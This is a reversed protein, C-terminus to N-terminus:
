KAPCAVSGITSKLSRVLRDVTSAFKQLDATSYVFDFKAIAPGCLAIMRTYLVRAGKRGSYSAADPTSVAYTISWGDHKEFQQEARVASEFDGDIDSPLYRGFVTLAATPTKFTEGDGNFPEGQGVFGPPIDIAYGFRPNVYHGWDAALAPQPLVLLLVVLWRIM